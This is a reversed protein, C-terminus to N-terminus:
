YKSILKLGNGSFIVIIHYNNIKMVFIRNKLSPKNTTVFSEEGKTVINVNM